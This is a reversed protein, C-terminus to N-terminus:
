ATKAVRPMVKESFLRVTRDAVAAPMTSPMVLLSAIEFGGVKRDYDTMAGLVDDPTGVWAFSKEVQQEFSESAIQAIIKDYGPYDKTSAGKMWGSASDALGHIHGNIPERADAYAQERSEACCLFFSSMITGRGPHGASQWAERYLGYLEFMKSAEIPITMLNYGNRGAESFSQPTGVAAVWFPPHPVQTPRPLSTVNAFRHFEGAHSVNEGTLLLKIQTVGETFRRRSEDLSVGFTEFEHPLFARAFGVDLRGGSIGDLM